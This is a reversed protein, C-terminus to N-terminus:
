RGTGFHVNRLSQLYYEFTQWNYMAEHIEDLETGVRSSSPRAKQHEEMRVLITKSLKLYNQFM